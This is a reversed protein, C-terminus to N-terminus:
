WYEAHLAGQLARMDVEYRVGDSDRILMVAM